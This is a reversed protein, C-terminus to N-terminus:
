DEARVKKSPEDIQLLEPLAGVGTEVIGADVIQVVREGRGSDCGALAQRHNALQEPVGLHLCGGAVRM